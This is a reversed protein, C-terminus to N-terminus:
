SGRPPCTSGTSAPTACRPRRWASTVERAGADRLLNVLGRSTTGRVVSDDVVVVRRGELIERVANYKMRVKFDRGAQSPEIFTRGV